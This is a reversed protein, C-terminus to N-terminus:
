DNLRDACHALARAIYRRVTKTSVGLQRAIEDHTLQEYRSLILAHRCAEPLENLANLFKRIQLAGDAQEELSPFPDICQDPVVGSDYDVSHAKTTRWRDISINLATRFLYARPEHLRDPDGSQQMLRLYAEQVVDDAEHPGVRRQVCARLEAYDRRFLRDFFSKKGGPM